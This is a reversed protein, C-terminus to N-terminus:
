VSKVAKNHVSVARGSPDDMKEFEKSWRFAIPSSCAISPGAEVTLAAANSPFMEEIKTLYFTQLEDVKSFDYSTVLNIALGKRGFRGSRGIRHIYTEKFKPMDYNIVLSVQQVDIGRAVIDTAILIRETGSKFAKISMDIQYTDGTPDLFNDIRKKVHDFSFYSFFSLLILFIIALILLLFSLGAIFLQCFFSISFLLTMGLDPQLIILGALLFFTIFVIYMSIKHGQIGKSLFWASLMLFFPKLFESPQLSLNNIRLWRKSGKVEYNMFLIIFLIIVSIILGILALRRLIRIELFSLFIMLVISLLSYTLHRNVSSSDNISFSLIIGVIILFIIILFNIRDITNWWNILLKNM